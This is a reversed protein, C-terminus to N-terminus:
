TRSNFIKISSDQTMVRAISEALFDGSKTCCSINCKKDILIPSDEGAKTEKDDDSDSSDDDDMFAEFPNVLATERLWSHCDLSNAVFQAARRMGMINGADPGGNLAALAGVVFLDLGEKWRLDQTM